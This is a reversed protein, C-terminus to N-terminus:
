NVKRVGEKYMKFGYGIIKKCIVGPDDEGNDCLITYFDWMINEPLSVISYTNYGEISVCGKLDDYHDIGYSMSRIILENISISHKRGYVTMTDFQNKTLTLVTSESM